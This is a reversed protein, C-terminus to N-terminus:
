KYIKKLFDLTYATTIDLPKIAMKQDLMMQYTAKWTNDDMMGPKSGSPSLLPLMARLREMQDDRKLDKGYALTYEVAQAPNDIVDQAGQIVAKVFKEVIAPKEKIMQETTFLINNYSEIGYDSMLIINPEFGAQRVQIGENIIWGVIADVEGNLLPEIGFNKREITNIKTPDIGQSSLLADYLTRSGGNAVSVTRGILDQPRLINSKPLSIVSIPSRQLISAVAVFPNGNARAQLMTFDSTLGFDAKGAAIEHITDVYTGDVFGGPRLEVSLGQAAFRGNKEAAYFESTTFEHIWGLQITVKALPSTNASANTGCSALVFAGILLAVTFLRPHIRM